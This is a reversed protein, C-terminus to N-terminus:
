KMFFHESMVYFFSTWVLTSVFLNFCLSISSLFFVFLIAQFCVAQARQRRSCAPKGVWGIGASARPLSDSNGRTAWETLDWTAPIWSRWLPLHLTVRHLTLPTLSETHNMRPFSIDSSHNGRTACLSEVQWWHLASCAPSKFLFLRFKICNYFIFWRHFLKVAGNVTARSIFTRRWRHHCLLHQWTPVAPGAAITRRWGCHRSVKPNSVRGAGSGPGGRGWKERGVERERM